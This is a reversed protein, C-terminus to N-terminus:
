FWKRRKFFILMVGGISFMLGIAAPYAWRQSLEPMHLFNMGYVGAIFTIPIFITSIITLVKMIENMRNSMGSMYLERLSAATDRLNTVSDLLHIVHDHIDRFYIQTQDTMGQVGNRELESTVDRTAWLTARVHQIETRLQHITEIHEPKPGGSISEVIEEAASEYSEILPFYCDVALDVIAYFLLDVGSRRLLSGANNLRNFIPEFLEDDAEEDITILMRNTLLLDMELDKTASGPVFHLTRLVTYTYSEYQETKIRQETSAVDELVLPHVGFAEGMAALLTRDPVGSIRLWRVTGDPPSGVDENIHEVSRREVGAKSYEIIELRPPQDGTEMTTPLAGPPLGPTFARRTRKKMMGGYAVSGEHFVLLLNNAVRKGSEIVILAEPAVRVVRNAQFELERAGTVRDGRDPGRSRVQLSVGSNDMSPNLRGQRILQACPIHVCYEPGGADGLTEGHLVFLGRKSVFPRKGNPAGTFAVASSLRSDVHADLIDRTLDTRQALTQVRYEALLNRPLLKEERALFRKLM